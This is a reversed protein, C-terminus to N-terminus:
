RIPSLSYWPGAPGEEISVAFVADPAFSTFNRGDPTVFAIQDKIPKEVDTPESEQYAVRGNKLFVLQDEFETSGEERTGLASSREQETTADLFFFAQDWDFATFDRIRVSCPNATGCSRRIQAFMGREVKGPHKCGAVALLFCLAAFSIYRSTRGPPFTM